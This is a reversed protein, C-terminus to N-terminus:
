EDAEKPEPYEIPEKCSPCEKIGFYFSTSCKPCHWTFWGSGDERGWVDGHSVIVVESV